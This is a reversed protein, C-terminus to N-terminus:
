VEAHSTVTLSPLDGVWSWGRKTMILKPNMKACRENFCGATKGPGTGCVSQLCQWARCRSLLRSQEGSMGHRPRLLGALQLAQGRRLGRVALLWQPMTAWDELLRDAHATCSQHCLWAAMCLASGLKQVTQLCQLALVKQLLAESACGSM